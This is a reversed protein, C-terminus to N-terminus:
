LHYAEDQQIGSLIWDFDGRTIQTDCYGCVGVETIKDLAAGCNPCRALDRERSTVGKRRVFTWYESFTRTKQPDGSVITGDSTRVTYDKMRAFIRLTVAEFYRDLTVKSPEVRLVQIEELVNRVGERRYAELWYQHQQFLYTTELARAEEWRGDTWAEQLRLFTEGAFEQFRELSFETDASQLLRLDAQLSPSRLTPLDTGIEMGQSSIVSPLAETRSRRELTALVWSWRGDNVTEGCSPCRGDEDVQTNNGCNPCSLAYVKEPTITTTRAGREFVLRDVVYLTKDELILNAEVEFRAQQVQATVTAQVLRCSGVIVQKAQRNHQAELATKLSPNLYAGLFSLDSGVHKLTQSYLSTVFTLFLTESFNADHLRFQDLSLRPAKQLTNQASWDQLKNFAREEPTGRSRFYYYLGGGLLLPVGIKPYYFILRIVLEIILGIGDGGGGGDSSSSYGGGGSYTEGGGVRAWAIGVFTLMFVGILSLPFKKLFRTM